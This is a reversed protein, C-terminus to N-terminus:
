SVRIRTGHELSLLIEDAAINASFYSGSIKARNITSGTLLTNRFDIDRLDAMRFNCDSLDLGDANIGRLDMSSFDYGELHAVEGAQKSANFEEIKGERLLRYLPQEQSTNPVSM